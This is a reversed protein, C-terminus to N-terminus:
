GIVNVTLHRYDKYVRGNPAKALCCLNDIAMQIIERYEAETYSLSYYYMIIADDCFRVDDCKVSLIHHTIRWMAERKRVTVADSNCYGVKDRIVDEAYEDLGCRELHEKHIGNEGANQYMDSFNVEVTVAPKMPREECM